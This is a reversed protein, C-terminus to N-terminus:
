EAALDYVVPQTLISAFRARASSASQLIQPPKRSEPTDLRLGANKHGAVNWGSLWSLLVSASLSIAVPLLWLTVAGMAIGILTLAGLGTEVAHFRALAALGPQGGDRRQPAWIDRASIMATAVSLVQQVMLIPAYIVSVLIETLAALAFVKGGGFAVRRRASNLIVAVSALKPGLLMVLVCALFLGGGGGFGEIVVPVPPAGDIGLPIVAMQPFAWIAMLALWVPALLYSVAGQLFHFRSVPHLGKALLLRLHQLNGRCWRRDRLIHDMLCGPTEEYSGEIEPMFHVRWGARRLMAAEVFDHSMILTRQGTVSVLHPLGASGAFARTRIIANHGWYNAEAGTWMGLGRAMLWGHASTVFQQVRPFLGEARLIRPWSQVLGVAPDAALARRLQLVSSASMLSDADLVVMAEYDAGWGTVWDGINGTKRDTNTPRRRYHINFRDGQEIQLHQFLRLEQAAIADDRTDSLVFLSFNAADPQDRLDELLAAANGFVAVPDENHIPILLAVSMNQAAMPQAPSTPLPRVFLGLVATSVSIAIWLFAFGSLYLHVQEVPAMDGVALRRAQAFVFAATLAIAPLFALARWLMVRNNTTASAAVKADPRIMQDPTAAFDQTPMPLPARPPMLPRLTPQDHIVGDM